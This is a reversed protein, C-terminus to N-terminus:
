VTIILNNTNMTNTYSVDRAVRMIMHIGINKEPHEPDYAWKEAQERLDFKECNDRMRLVVSGDKVLVRM